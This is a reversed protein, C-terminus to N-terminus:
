ILRSQLLQMGVGAGRNTAALINSGQSALSGAKSVYVCKIPLRLRDGITGMSIERKNREKEKERTKKETVAM